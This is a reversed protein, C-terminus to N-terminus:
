QDVRPKVSEDIHAQAPSFVGISSVYHLFKPRTTVAMRILEKTSEVNCNKLALLIYLLIFLTLVQSLWKGTYPLASNVIAGNHIITDVEECLTTYDDTSLGLRPESLDGVMVVLKEASVSSDCKFELQLQRIIKM